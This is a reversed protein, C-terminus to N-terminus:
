SREDGRTANTIVRDRSRQVKVFSTKKDMKKQAEDGQCAEGSDMVLRNQETGM